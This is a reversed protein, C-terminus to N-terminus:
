KYLMSEHQKIEDEQFRFGIRKAPVGGVIEYPSVDKTVIAGAAIVAGKGITVGKLIIANAGIWNDGMFFVNQDNEPRKEKETVSIITRGVLDTRHDGTIVTVNPGFVVNDGIIVKANSSLFLNNDGFYVNNGVVVNELNGKVWGGFNVNMGHRDLLSRQFPAYITRKIKRLARVILSNTKNM